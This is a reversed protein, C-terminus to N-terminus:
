GAPLCMFNVEISRQKNGFGRLMCREVNNPLVTVAAAPYCDSTETSGRKDNALITLLRLEYPTENVIQVPISVASAQTSCALIFIVFILFQIPRMNMVM